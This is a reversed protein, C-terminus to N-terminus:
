WIMLAFSIGVLEFDHTHYDKEHLKLQQSAYVILRDHQMVMCGLEKSSADSYVVMERTEDPIILVLTTTFKQQLEKFTSDCEM